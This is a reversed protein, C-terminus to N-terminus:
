KKLEELQKSVNHLNGFTAKIAEPYSILHYPLGHKKAFAKVRDRVLWNRYQPMAPMMHHEIQYNLYGMWHDVIGFPGSKVNCTHALSYEVWHVPETTVPLHTHSLSFNILFYCGGIYYLFLSQWLGIYSLLLWHLAMALLEVIEFNKIARLNSQITFFIGVLFIDITAFM